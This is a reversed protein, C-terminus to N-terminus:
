RGRLWLAGAGLVVLLAAWGGPGSAAKAVDAPVEAAKSAITGVTQFVGAVYDSTMDAIDPMEAGAAGTGAVALLKGVRAQDEASLRDQLDLLEDRIAEWWEPGTARSDFGWPNADNIAAEVRALLVPSWGYKSAQGRAARLAQLQEQNQASQPTGPTQLQVRDDRV